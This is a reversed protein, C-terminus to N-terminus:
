IKIEVVLSETTTAPMDLMCAEHPRTWDMWCSGGARFWWPPPEEWWAAWGLGPWLSMAWFLVVVMILEPTYFLRASASPFCCSSSFLLLVPDAKQEEARSVWVDLILSIVTSYKQISTSSLPSCEWLCHINLARTRPQVDALFLPCWLSPTFTM